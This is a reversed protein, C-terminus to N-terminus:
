RSIEGLLEKISPIQPYGADLWLKRNTEPRNTALTLDKEEGSVGPVVSIDSREFAAAIM